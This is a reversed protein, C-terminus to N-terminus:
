LLPILKLRRCYATPFMISSSSLNFIISFITIHADPIMKLHGWYATPPMWEWKIFKVRIELHSYYISSMQRVEVLGWDTEVTPDGLRCVVKKLLMWLIILISWIIILTNDPHSYLLWSSWIIIVEAGGDSFDSEYDEDTTSQSERSFCGRDAQVLM